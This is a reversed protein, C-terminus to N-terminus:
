FLSPLTAGYYLPGTAGIVTGLWVLGFLATTVGDALRAGASALRGSLRAVLRPAAYAAIGGGVLGLAASRGLLAGAEPLGPVLTLSNLSPLHGGDAHLQYALTHVALLVGTLTASVALGTGRSPPMLAFPAGLLAGLLFSGILHVAVGTRYVWGGADGLLAHVALALAVDLAAFVLAFALLSAAKRTAPSLEVAQVVPTQADLPVESDLMAEKREPAFAGGHRRPH